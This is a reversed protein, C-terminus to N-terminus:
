KRLKRALINGYVGDDNIKQTQQVARQNNQQVTRQNSYVTPQEVRSSYVGDNDYYSAQQYSGCSAVITALVGLTIMKM